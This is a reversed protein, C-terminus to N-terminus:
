GTLPIGKSSLVYDLLPPTIWPNIHIDTSIEGNKDISFDKGFNKLTLRGNTQINTKILWLKLISVDGM